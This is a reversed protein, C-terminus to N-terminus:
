NQKLMINILNLEDNDIITKLDNLLISRDVTDFAKSMDLMLLYITYNQSTTAKETLIKTAFVHEITSRGQRYAAQSPPIETDIKTIIRKKLCIALIRRLM